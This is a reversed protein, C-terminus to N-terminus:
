GARKRAWTAARRRQHHTWGHYSRKPSGDAGGQCPLGRRSGCVPCAVEVISRDGRVYRHHDRSWVLVTVGTTRSIKYERARRDYRVECHKRVVVLKM